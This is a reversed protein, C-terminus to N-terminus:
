PNRPQDRCPIKGITKVRDVLDHGGCWLWYLSQEKGAAKDAAVSAEALPQMAAITEATSDFAVVVPSENIYEVCGGHLENLPKPHWPFEADTPDSLTTVKTSM